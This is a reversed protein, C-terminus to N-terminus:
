EPLSGTLKWISANGNRTSKNFMPKNNNVLQSM